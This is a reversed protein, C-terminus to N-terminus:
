LVFQAHESMTHTHIHVCSRHGGVKGARQRRFRVFPSPSPSPPPFLPTPSRPVALSPTAPLARPSVLASFSSSAAAAAPTRPTPPPLLSAPNALAALSRLVSWIVDRKVAHLLEKWHGHIDRYTM